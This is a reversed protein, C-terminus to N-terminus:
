ITDKARLDPEETFYKFPVSFLTQYARSEGEGLCLVTGFEVKHSEINWIDIKGAATKVVIRGNVFRIGDIASSYSKSNIKHATKMSIVHPKSQVTM